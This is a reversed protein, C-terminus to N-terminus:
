SIGDMKGKYHSETSPPVMDQLSLWHLVVVRYTLSFVSFISIGYHYTVMWLPCRTGQRYGNERLYIFRRHQM